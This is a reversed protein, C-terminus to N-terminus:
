PKYEMSAITEYISAPSISKFALDIIQIETYGRRLYEDGHSYIFKKATNFIKEIPNYDASFCILNV